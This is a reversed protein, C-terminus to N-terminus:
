NVKNHEIYDVGRILKKFQIEVSKLEINNDVLEWPSDVTKNATVTINYDLALFYENLKTYNDRSIKTLDQYGYLIECMYKLTILLVNYIYNYDNSELGLQISGIEKPGGKCVIEALEKLNNNDDEFVKSAM